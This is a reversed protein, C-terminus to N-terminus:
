EKSPPSRDSREKSPLRRFVFSTFWLVPFGIAALWLLGYSEGAQGTLGSYARQGPLGTSRRSAGGWGSGSSIIFRCGLFPSSAMDTTIASTSPAHPSPSVASVSAVEEGSVAPSVVGAVVVPSVVGSPSPSGIRMPVRVSRVPLKVGQ